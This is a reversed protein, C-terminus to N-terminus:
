HAPLSSVLGPDIYCHHQIETGNLRVTRRVYGSERTVNVSVREQNNTDRFLQEMVYRHQEASLPVHLNFVPDHYNFTHRRTYTTPRLAHRLTGGQMLFQFHGDKGPLPWTIEEDDQRGRPRPVYAAIWLGDDQFGAVVVLDRKMRALYAAYPSHKILNFVYTEMQEGTDVFTYSGELRGVLPYYWGRLRFVLAYFASTLTLSLNHLFHRM